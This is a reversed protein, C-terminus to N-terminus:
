IEHKELFNNFIKMSKSELNNEFYLACIWADPIRTGELKTQYIVHKIIVM